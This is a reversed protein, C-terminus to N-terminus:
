DSPTLLMVPSNLAPPPKHGSLISLNGRLKHSQRPRINDFTLLKSIENFDVLKGYFSLTVVNKQKPTKEHIMRSWVGAFSLLTM